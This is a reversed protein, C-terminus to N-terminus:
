NADAGLRYARRGHRAGLTKGVPVFGSRHPGLRLPELGPRFIPLPAPERPADHATAPVTLERKEVQDIAGAPDLEETGLIAAAGDVYVEPVDHSNGSDGGTRAAALRRQRDLLELDECTGRPGEGVRKM